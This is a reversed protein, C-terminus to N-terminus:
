NQEEWFELLVSFGQIIIATLYANQGPILVFNPPILILTSDMTSMQSALKGSKNPKLRKM